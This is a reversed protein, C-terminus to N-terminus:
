HSLQFRDLKGMFVDALLSGLPSGMAVGDVQRYLQNDFLFQVNLTCRLSLEKLTKTPIGIERQSASLFECIYDITETVPVNTFLSSVDLSFMVMANVNLDKIDDIFELTDRYSRPALQRKVAKQSECKAAISRTGTQQSQAVSYRRVVICGSADGSCLWNFPHSKALTSDSAAISTIALSAPQERPQTSEALGLSAYITDPLLHGHKPMPDNRLTRVVEGLVVDWIHLVGNSCGSLAFNETLFKTMSVDFPQENMFITPLEASHLTPQRRCRLQEMIGDLHVAVSISILSQKTQTNLGSQSDSSTNTWRFLLFSKKPSILVAQRKSYQQKIIRMSVERLPSEKAICLDTQYVLTKTGPSWVSLVAFCDARGSHPTASIVLFVEGHAFINWVPGNLQFQFREGRFQCPLTWLTATQGFGALVHQSRELLAFDASNPVDNQLTPTNQKLTDQCNGDQTSWLKISLGSNTSMTIVTRGDMTVIFREVDDAEMPSKYPYVASSQGNANSLSSHTGLTVIRTTCRSNQTTPTVPLIPEKTAKSNLLRTPLNDCSVLLSRRVDELRLIGTPINLPNKSCLNIRPMWSRKGSNFGRSRNAKSKLLCILVFLACLVILLFLSGAIWMIIYIGNVEPCSTSEDDYLVTVPTLSGMLIWRIRRHSVNFKKNLRYIGNTKEDSSEFTPLIMSDSNKEFGGLAGPFEDSGNPWAGMFIKHFLQPGSAQKKIEGLDATRGLVGRAASDNFRFFLWNEDTVNEKCVVSQIDPPYLPQRGIRVRFYGNQLDIELAHLMGNDIIESSSESCPVLPVWSQLNTLKLDCAYGIQRNYVALACRGGDDGEFSLLVDKRENMNPGASRRSRGNPDLYKEVEKEASNVPIRFILRISNESGADVVAFSSPRNLDKPTNQDSASTEDQDEFPLRGVHEHQCSDGWYFTKSCDCVPKWTEGVLTWRCLGNNLCAPTCLPRASPKAKPRRGRRLNPNPSIATCFRRPSMCQCLTTKTALLNRELQDRCTLDAICTDINCMPIKADEPDFGINQEISYLHNRDAPIFHFDDILVEGAHGTWRDNSILGGIFLGEALLGPPRTGETEGELTRNGIVMLQNNISVELGGFASWSVVVFAWKGDAEKMQNPSVTAKWINSLTRGPTYYRDMRLETLLTLAVEGDQVHEQDTWDLVLSISLRSNTLGVLEAVRWTQQTSPKEREYSPIYVMWFSITVGFHCFELAHFCQMAPTSPKCDQVCNIAKDDVHIIPHSQPVDISIPFAQDRANSHELVGNDNAPGDVNIELLNISLGALEPSLRCFDTSVLADPNILGSLMRELQSFHCQIIPFPGPNVIGLEILNSKPYFYLSVDSYPLLNSSACSDNGLADVYADDCASAGVSQSCGQKSVTIKQSILPLREKRSVVTFNKSAGRGVEFHCPIQLCIKPGFFRSEICECGEDEIAHVLRLSWNNEQLLQLSVYFGLEPVSFVKRTVSNRSQLSKLPLLTFTVFIDDMFTKPLQIESSVFATKLPTLHVPRLLTKMQEQWDLVGDPTVRSQLYAFSDVNAPKMKSTPELLSFSFNRIAYTLSKSNCTTKNTHTRASSGLFVFATNRPSYPDGQGVKQVTALPGIACVRGNFLMTIHTHNWEVTVQSWRGPLLRIDDSSCGNIQWFLNPPAMLQAGVVFLQKQSEKPSFLRNQLAEYTLTFYWSSNPSSAHKFLIARNTECNDAVKRVSDPYIFLWLKYVIGNRCTFINTFCSDTEKWAEEKESFLAGASEGFSADQSIVLKRDANTRIASPVPADLQISEVVDHERRSMTQVIRLDTKFSAASRALGVLREGNKPLRWILSDHPNKCKEATPCLCVPRDSRSTCGCPQSTEDSRCPPDITLAEKQLLSKPISRADCLSTWKIDSGLQIFRPGFAQGHCHCGSALMVNKISGEFPYFMSIERLQGRGANSVGYVTAEFIEKFESHKKILLDVAYRSLSEEPPLGFFLENLFVSRLAENQGVAEFMDDKEVAQKRLGAWLPWLLDQPQLQRRADKHDFKFIIETQVQVTRTRRNIVKRQYGTRVSVRHWGYWPRDYFGLAHQLYLRITLDTLRIVVLRIYPRELYLVLALPDGDYGRNNTTRSRPRQRRDDYPLIAPAEHRGSVGAM